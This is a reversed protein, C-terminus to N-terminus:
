GVEPDYAVVSEQENPDNRAVIAHAPESDSLNVPQHPVDAPIFIFDGAENVMSETLGPGYRTEVRGRLLYIATEYGQHLHPAAAGGPPIVVLNMSIGSAGASAESIGVFNPLNQRTMTEAKPRVVVIQRAGPVDQSHHHQTPGRAPSM